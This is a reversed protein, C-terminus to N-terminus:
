LKMLSQMVHFESNIYVISIYIYIASICFLFLGIEGTIRGNARTGSNLVRPSKIAKARFESYCLIPRKRKQM